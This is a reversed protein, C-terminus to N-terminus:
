GYVLKELFKVNVLPLFEPKEARGPFSKSKVLWTIGHIGRDHQRELVGQRDKNADVPCDRELTENDEVYWHGVRVVDGPM